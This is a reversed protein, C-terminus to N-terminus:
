STEQLESMNQWLIITKSCYIWCASWTKTCLMFFLIRNKQGTELVSFWGVQTKLDDVTAEDSIEVQGVSRFEAGDDSCGPLQVDGKELLGVKDRKGETPSKFDVEM